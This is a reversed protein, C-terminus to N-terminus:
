GHLTEGVMGDVVFGASEKSVNKTIIFIKYKSKMFTGKLKPPSWMCREEKKLTMIKGKNVLKDFNSRCIRVAAMFEKATIYPSSVVKSKQQVPLANVKESIEVLTKKLSQWEAAPLVICAFEKQLEM